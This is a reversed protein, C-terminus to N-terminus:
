VGPLFLIAEPAVTWGYLEQLRAVIAAVLAEPCAEYGFVGHAVRAQLAAIVPEPAAFDMDAVWMPLADEGYYQWKICETVRRDIIRDFDYRSNECTM